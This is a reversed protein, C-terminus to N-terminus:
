VLKFELEPTNNLFNIFEETLEVQKNRSFLNIKMNTEEDTINIKLIKGNSPVTFKELEKIMNENVFNLPINVDVAKVM